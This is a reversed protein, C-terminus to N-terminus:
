LITSFYKFVMTGLIAVQLVIILMHYNSSKIVDRERTKMSITIFATAIYLLFYVVNVTFLGIVVFIMEVLILYFEPTKAFQIIKNQLDTSMTGHNFFDSSGKIDEKFELHADTAAKLRIEDIDAKKAGYRYIFYSSLVHNRISMFILHLYRLAVYLWFLYFITQM